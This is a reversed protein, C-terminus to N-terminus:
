ARLGTGLAYFVENVRLDRHLEDLTTSRQIHVLEVGAISAFDRLHEGTVAQSYVTHHSGAAHIWAACAIEFPASTRWVARGVPLAPMPPPTVTEVDLAVMRFRNGLDVICATVAPGPSADFVLRVPDAKGGIGLAHVELSPVDSAITPCTELMHAGLILPDDPDLHYTYDEMFSTGGTRGHGIVKLARLMAASKWDGEAGFGYGESMLRQVALGPLQTMGHLDEFNTTFGRQGGEDLFSRLGLEIAAGDRLSAHRPGSPLLEPAVRYLDLYEAVLDDISRDDVADIREVLDGIGYGNFSFGFRMQAGVKDGETVAVHRMNDGFRAFPAGQLDHWARAVRAWADLHDQVAPASWHGVVVKRALRMRSHLYGAERDGHAAQNLNMFDMDITAWPLERNFQTHLHCFPKDLVSLGGIWMRAPSFTHMWLVLGACRDDSNAAMCVQRIEDPTTVVSKWVIPVSIRDSADLAAAIAQANHEVERLAEDGYLHQSGCVFWLEVPALHAIPTASM